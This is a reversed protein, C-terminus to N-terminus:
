DLLEIGNLGIYYFDGHTSYLNIRISFGIPMGITEYEQFLSMPNKSMRQLPMIADTAWGQMFPLKIDQGIDLEPEIFGPAKRLTIGKKPTVLKEDVKIIVQKAGRLSDELSKNYNFFRVATITKITGFDITLTHNEGKNFPILWMNRDDTTNNKGNFLKELTRHDQGHGPICNMDRPEAVVRTKSVM